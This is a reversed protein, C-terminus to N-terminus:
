IQIELLAAGAGPLGRPGQFGKRKTLLPNVYKLLLPARGGWRGRVQPAQFSPAMGQPGEEARQTASLYPALLLRGLALLLELGM